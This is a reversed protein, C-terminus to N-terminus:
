AEKFYEWLYYLIELVQSMKLPLEDTLDCGFLDYFGVWKWRDLFDYKLHNMLEVKKPENMKKAGIGLRL